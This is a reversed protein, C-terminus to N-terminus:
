GSAAVRWKWASAAAEGAAIVWPRAQYQSPRAAAAWFGAGGSTGFGSAGVGGAGVGITGVGIAGFRITGVRVPGLGGGPGGGEVALKGRQREALVGCGEGCADVRQMVRFARAVLGEAQGLALDDAGARQQDGPALRPAGLREQQAHILQRRVQGIARQGRQEACYRPWGCIATAIALRMPRSPAISGCAPQGTGTLGGCSTTSGAMTSPSIRWSLLKSLAVTLGAPARPSICSMGAVAAVTACSIPVLTVGTASTKSGCCFM